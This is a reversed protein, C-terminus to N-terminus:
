GVRGGPLGWGGAAEPELCMVWANVWVGWLRARCRGNGAM